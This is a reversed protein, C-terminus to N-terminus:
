NTNKNIVGKWSQVNVRLIEYQENLARFGLVTGQFHSTSLIIPQIFLVWGM